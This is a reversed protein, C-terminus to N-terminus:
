VAQIENLELEGVPTEDVIEQPIHVTFISGQGYVSEAEMRGDMAELIQGTIALGLGSRETYDYEKGRVAEFFEQLKELEEERIGAGTDFVRVIMDLMKSDTKEFSFSLTVVGKATNKVANSLLNTVVQKIRVEDGYLIRPYNEDVEIYFQLKKRDAGMKTVTYLEQAMSCLLYKKPVIELKGSEIKSIDLIDNVISILNQGAQEIQLAYYEVEEGPKKRLIRENMEIITNVPNRIEHSINTFFAAKTRNAREAERKAEDLEFILEMDPNELTFYMSVMSLASGASVILIQPHLMQILSATTVFGIYVYISLRRIFPIRKGEITIAALCFIISICGFGFLIDVGKGYSYVRGWEDFYHLKQFVVWLCVFLVAISAAAIFLKFLKKNERLIREARTLSLTYISVMALWVAITCLYGKTFFETMSGAVDRHAIAIVSSFDMFNVLLSQILLVGYIQNQISKLRSKSFYVSAFILLVCFSLLQFEINYRM